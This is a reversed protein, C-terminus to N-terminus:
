SNKEVALKILTSYDTLSRTKVAEQAFANAAEDFGYDFISVLGSIQLGASRVPRFLIRLSWCRNAQKMIVKSRIEWGTNRRSQVFMFLLCKSNIQLWPVGPLGPPQLEQWINPM